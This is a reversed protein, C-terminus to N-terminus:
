GFLKDVKIKLKNTQKKKKNSVLLYSILLVLILSFIILKKNKIDIINEM